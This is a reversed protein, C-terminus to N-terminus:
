QNQVNNDSKAPIEDTVMKETAHSNAESLKSIKKTSGTHNPNKVTSSSDLQNYYPKHYNNNDGQM